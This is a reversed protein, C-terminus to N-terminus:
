ITLVPMTRGHISAIETGNREVRTKGWAPTVTVTVRLALLFQSRAGWPCLM